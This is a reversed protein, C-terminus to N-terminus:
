CRYVLIRMVGIILLFSSATASVIGTVRFTAQMKTLREFFFLGHLKVDTPLLVIYTQISHAPTNRNVFYWQTGVEVRIRKAADACNMVVIALQGDPRRFATVQLGQAACSGYMPWGQCDSTNVFRGQTANVQAIQDGGMDVHLRMSGPSIFKSFHGIYFYQPHYHLKGPSGRTDALIPADCYNHVHNPGGIEDLLLNWDTWGAAGGELDVIIDYGYGEGRAWSGDFLDDGHAQALEYCAETPLLIKSPFSRAVHEVQNRCSGAYWHFAVGDLFYSAGQTKEYLITAWDVLHDKNHDFGLIKINPYVAKVRPGLFDAVFCSEDRAKFVCSEWQQSSEPENQVTIGWMRIGYTTYANLWKVIYRAWVDHATDNVKGGHLMDNNTKMWAPPSWPSGVLNLQFQHAQADEPAGQSRTQNSVASRPTIWGTPSNRLAAEAAQIMPITRAADIAVTDDFHILDYDLDAEDFSYTEPSFDCSNIPM